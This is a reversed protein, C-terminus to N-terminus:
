NSSNKNKKFNAQTKGKKVTQLQGQKVVKKPKNKEASAKGKKGSTDNKNKANKGDNYNKNVRGLMAEQKQEYLQRKFEDITSHFIETLREDAKASTQMSLMTTRKLSQAQPPRDKLVPQLAGTGAIKSARVATDYSVAALKRNQIKAQREKRYAYDEDDLFDDENGLRAFMRNESVVIERAM